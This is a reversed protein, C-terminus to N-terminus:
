DIAYTVDSTVLNYQGSYSGWQSTLTYIGETKPQIKRIFPSKSNNEKNVPGVYYKSNGDKQLTYYGNATNDDTVAFTIIYSKGAELSYRFIGNNKEEESSLCLVEQEDEGNNQRTSVVITYDFTSFSVGTTKSSTSDAFWAWTLGFLCALCLIIGVVSPMIISIIKDPKEPEAHKPIYLLGKLINKEAM